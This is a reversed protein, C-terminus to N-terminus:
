VGTAKKEGQDEVIHMGEESVANVLSMARIKPGWIMCAIVGGYGLLCFFSMMGFAWNTGIKDSWPFLFFTIGISLSSRYLNIAASVENALKPTFAEIVYNLLAPFAAINGFNSLFVALALVMYHWHYHICAGFLGVGLPTCLLLPLWTSHLRYEPKWVGGNRACLALPLRDALLAGYGEAALAAVWLVLTVPSVFTLVILLPLLSSHQSVPLM